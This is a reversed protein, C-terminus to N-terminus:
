DKAHLYQWIAEFQKAADGDLVDTRQTKNDKSYVPMKTAPTVSKPNDMWRHYYDARIRDPVLNFNPGEVEFAATAKNDGIAHCTNCGFGTAEVLNRGIAAMAPDVVVEAPKSSAVGHLKSFGNALVSARSKFAPMRMALWPRPRPDATGSIMAEIATTHLMEGTFTLQPRSQDVRENLKPLHAIISAAENQRDSVLSDKGDLGHCATCRLADIQRSVYEAPADRKLSDCGMKSFAVLAARDTEDLNLRPSKGRKEASAVCGKTTWDAKFVADMAPPASEPAMPMGPHCVGCQLSAAVAAGRTLDGAPFEQAFRTEHGASSKTLFAAIANAEADSLKFDPMKSFPHYADPQKLFAVLAGPLYKSAVNNLPIRNPDVAIMDPLQHCAVCGLEHFHVGGEKALEPDPAAGAPTETKLSALYAALDSAQQRGETTAVDVLAPMQTTAKMAKPDAIWKRLWEESTRDGSGFLIPGVEAMEPMPSSGFGTSSTHCKACNQAAFLQRGRRQLAGLAVDGNTESVFASPPVTQRTFSAEEWYLRFTASGDAKSSYTLTMEHEGPNLRTSKSAKGAFDGEASLVDKGDIKLDAIGEGAFSFVLRERQALVLKGAWVVQFAGPTLFPTAPEGAELSLAPFRDMRVDTKGERTFTATLGAEASLAMLSLFLCSLYSRMM